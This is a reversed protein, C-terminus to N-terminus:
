ARHSLKQRVRRDDDIVFEHGFTEDGGRPRMQAVVWQVYEGMDECLMYFRGHMGRSERDREEAAAAARMAERDPLTCNGSLVRAIWESQVESCPFPAISWQLAPFSLLGAHDPHFLFGYLPSVHLDSTSIRISSSSALFPFSYHYGTALLIVDVTLQRPQGDSGVVSVTGNENVLQLAGVREYRDSDACVRKGAGRLRQVVWRHVSDAEVTKRSSLYVRSASDCLEGAIDTGSHSSGVVLVRLNAFPRPFRYHFSHMVLPTTTHSSRTSALSDLSPPHDPPSLGPIPPYYPVSFHGNCVSVADFHQMWEVGSRGEGSGSDVVTADLLPPLGAPRSYYVEYGGATGCVEVRQVTSEFRVWRRVDFVREYQLLYEDVVHRQPYTATREPFSLDSTRMVDHPLNTILQDYMASHPSPTPTYHWQGSTHTTQELVLPTHGHEAFTKAAILGSAGAGIICIRKSSGAPTSVASPAASPM